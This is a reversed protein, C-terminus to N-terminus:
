VYFCQFWWRSCGPLEEEEEQQQQQQQQQSSDEQKWMSVWESSLHRYGALAYITVKKQGVLHAGVM